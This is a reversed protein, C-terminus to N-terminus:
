SGYWHACQPSPSGSSSSWMMLTLRPPVSSSFLRCHNHGEHWLTFVRLSAYRERYLRAGLGGSPFYGPLIFGSCPPPLDGLRQFRGVFAYLALFIKLTQLKQEQTNAQKQPNHASRAAKRAQKRAHTHNTNKPRKFRWKSRQAKHHEKNRTVGPLRKCTTVNLPLTNPTFLFPM